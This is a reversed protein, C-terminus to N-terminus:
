DDIASALGQARKGLARSIDWILPPYTKIYADVIENACRIVAPEDEQLVQYLSHKGEKHTFLSAAPSTPYPHEYLDLQAGRYTFRWWTDAWGPRTLPKLKCRMKKELQKHVFSLREVDVVFRLYVGKRAGQEAYELFHSYSPTTHELVYSLATPLTSAEWTCLLGEIRQWQEPSAPEVLLGRLGAFDQHLTTGADERLRVLEDCLSEIKQITYEGEWWLRLRQLVGPM